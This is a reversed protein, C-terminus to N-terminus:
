AGPKEVKKGAPAILDWGAGFTQSGEGTIDGPKHDGAFYYLPHGAYTVQITGDTRKATGLLSATVGGGTVPSGATLVPPWLGACAGYCTSTAGTDKEFLYVARGTGDTLIVGLSSSGAKVTAAAASAAASSGAQTHGPAPTGSTAGSGPAASSSGSSCAAALLTVVAALPMVALTGRGTKGRARRGRGAGM